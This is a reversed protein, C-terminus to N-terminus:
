RYTYFRHMASQQVEFYNWYKDAFLVQSIETNKTLCINKINKAGGSCWAWGSKSKQAFHLACFEFYLTCLAWGSRSSRQAFDTCQM